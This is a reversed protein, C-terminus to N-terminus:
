SENPLRHPPPPDQPSDSQDKSVELHLTKGGKICELVRLEQCKRGGGGGEDGQRKWSLLPPRYLHLPPRDSGRVRTAASSQQAHSNLLLLPSHSCLPLRQPVILGRLAGRCSHHICSLRRHSRRRRQCLKEAATAALVDARKSEVRQSM